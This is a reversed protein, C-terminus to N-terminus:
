EEDFGGGERALGHLGEGAEDGHGDLAGLRQFVGGAGLGGLLALAQAGSQEVGDGMLQAGRERRDFSRYGRQERLLCEVIGRAGFEEGDDVLLGVAEVVEDLLRHLHRLEVGVLDMEFEAGMAGMM